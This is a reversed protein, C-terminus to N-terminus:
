CTIICDSPCYTKLGTQLSYQTLIYDEIMQERHISTKIHQLVSDYNTKEHTSLPEIQESAKITGGDLMGQFYQYEFQDAMPRQYQGQNLRRGNSSSRTNDEDEHQETATSSENDEKDTNEDDTDSQQDPGNTVGTTGVSTVTAVGTPEPGPQIDENREHAVGTINTDLAETDQDNTIDNDNADAFANTVGAPALPHDLSPDDDDNRSSDSDSEDDSSPSYTSDDDEDSAYPDNNINTFHLGPRSSRSLRKIRHIAEDPMPSVTYNNPARSIIRGSLLSYFDIGGQFNQTPGMAIVGTTRAKMTNDTEDRTQAYTGYAVQFHLSYDPAIGTVITTPALDMSIHENCSVINLEIHKGALSMTLPKFQEDALITTNHFNHKGYFHIIAQLVPLVDNTPTMNPEVIQKKCRVTKGKLGAVGPGLIARMLQVDRPMVPSNVLQRKQCIKLPQAESLHGAVYQLARAAEARKIDRTGENFMNPTAKVMASTQINDTFLHESDWYYLGKQSPRFIKVEGSPDTVKFYNGMTLNNYEIMYGYGELGRGGMHTIITMRANTYIHLEETAEEHINTLFSKQCFVYVTLQNDLLVWYPNIRGRSQNFAHKSNKRVDEVVVTKNAKTIGTMCSPWGIQYNYDDEDLYDEVDSETDDNDSNESDSQDILMMAGTQQAGKHTKNKMTIATGDIHETAKCITAIHGKRGCQYCTLNRYRNRTGNDDQQSSDSESSESEKNKEKKGHSLYTHRVVPTRVSYLKSNFKYSDLMTCTDAVNKPYRDDGQCYNNYLSQKYAGYKRQYESGKPKMHDDGRYRIHFILEWATGGNDSKKVASKWGAHSKVKNQMGLDCQGWLKDFLIGLNDKLDKAAIRYKNIDFEWNKAELPTLDKITERDHSATEKATIITDEMKTLTARVDKGYKGGAYSIFAERSKLWQKARITGTYTFVHDKLETIAGKFTNRSSEFRSNSRKKKKGKRNYSSKRSGTGENEGKNDKDESM